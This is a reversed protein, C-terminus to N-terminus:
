GKVRFMAFTNIACVSCSLVTYINVKEEALQLRSAVGRTEAKATEVDATSVTVTESDDREDSRKVGEQKLRVLDAAVREAEAATDNLKEQTRRCWFFNRYPCMRWPINCAVKGRLGWPVYCSQDGLTSREPFLSFLCILERLWWVLWHCTPDRLDGPM